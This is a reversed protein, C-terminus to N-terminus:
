ICGAWCAYRKGQPTAFLYWLGACWLPVTVNQTCKWFQNILFYNTRGRAIDRIHIAKMCELSVFQHQILWVINPLMILSAPVVGYWLWPSKLYRRNPTLLLGGVVGLVLYAM